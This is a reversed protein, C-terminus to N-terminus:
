REFGQAFEHERQAANTVKEKLTGIFDAAKSEFEPINVKKSKRLKDLTLYLADAMDLKSYAKGKDDRQGLMDQWIDANVGDSGRLNLNRQGAIWNAAVFAFIPESLAQRQPIDPECNNECLFQFVAKQVEQFCMVFIDNGDRDKGAGGKNGLSSVYPGKTVDQNM